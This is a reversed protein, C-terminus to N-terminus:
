YFSFSKFVLVFPTDNYFLRRAVPGLVYRYNYSSKMILITIKQKIIVDSLTQIIIIYMSFLVIHISLLLLIVCRGLLLRHRQSIEKVDRLSPMSKAEQDRHVTLM